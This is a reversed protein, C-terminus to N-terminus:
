LVDKLQKRIKTRSVNFLVSFMSNEYIAIQNIYPFFLFDNDKEERGWEEEEVMKDKEESREDREKEEREPSQDGATLSRRKGKDM